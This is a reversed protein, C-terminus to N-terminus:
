APERLPCLVIRYGDPDQITLAGQKEWYPNNARLPRVGCRKLRTQACAFAEHECYLVLLHEPSPCPPAGAGAETTFELHWDSGPLGLMMGDFGDHNRFAGIKEFGLVTCYFQELEHLRDTPRAFRVKM